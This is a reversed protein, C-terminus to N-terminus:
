RKEIITSSSNKTGAIHLQPDWRWTISHFSLVNSPLILKSLKERRWLQELHVSLNKM